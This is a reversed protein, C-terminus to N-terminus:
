GVLMYSPANLLKLVQLLRLTSPLLLLCKTLKNVVDLKRWNEEFHTRDEISRQLSNTWLKGEYRTLVM